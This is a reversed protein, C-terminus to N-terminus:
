SLQSQLGPARSNRSGDVLMTRLSSDINHQVLIFNTDQTGYSFHIPNKLDLWSAM